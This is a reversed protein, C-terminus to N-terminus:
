FPAAVPSGEELALQHGQVPFFTKEGRALWCAMKRHASGRAARRSSGCRLGIWLYSFIKYAATLVQRVFHDSQRVSCKQTM